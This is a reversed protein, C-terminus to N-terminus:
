YNKVRASVFVVPRLGTKNKQKHKHWKAGPPAQFDALFTNHHIWQILELPFM